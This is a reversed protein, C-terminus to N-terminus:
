RERETETERSYFSHTGTCPRIPTTPTTQKKRRKSLSRSVYMSERDHSKKQTTEPMEKTKRQQVSPQNPANSSQHKAPNAQKTKNMRPTTTIPSSFLLSLKCHSQAVLVSRDGCVVVMFCRCIDDNDISIDKQNWCSRCGRPSREREREHTSIKIQIMIPKAKQNPSHHLCSILTGRKIFRGVAAQVIVVVHNVAITTTTTTTTLVVLVVAAAVAAVTANTSKPFVKEVVFVVITQIPATAVVAVLISFLHSVLVIVM